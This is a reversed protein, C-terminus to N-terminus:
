RQAHNMTRGALEMLQKDEKRKNLVSGGKKGGPEGEDEPEPLDVQSAHRSQLNLIPAANLSQENLRAKPRYWRKCLVTAYCLTCLSLQITRHCGLCARHCGVPLLTGRESDDQCRVQWCEIADVAFLPESSLTPSCACVFHRHTFCTALQM